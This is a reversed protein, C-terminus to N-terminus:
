FILAFHAWRVERTKNLSLITVFQRHSTVPMIDSFAPFTLRASVHNNIMCLSYPLTM